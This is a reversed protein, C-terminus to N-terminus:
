KFFAGITWSVAKIIAKVAANVPLKDAIFGIATAIAGIAKRTSSSQTEIKEVPEVTKEVPKEKVPEKEVNVVVPKKVQVPKIEEVPESKKLGKLEAYRNLMVIAQHWILEMIVKKDDDLNPMLRIDKVESFKKAHMEAYRMQDVNDKPADAFWRTQAACYCWLALWNQIKEQECCFAIESALMQDRPARDSGRETSWENLKRSDQWDFKESSFYLM